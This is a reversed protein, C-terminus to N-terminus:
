SALLDTLMRVNAIHVEVGGLEEPDTLGYVEYVIDGEVLGTSLRDYWPMDNDLFEFEDMRDAPLRFRLEYPLYIDEMDIPNGTM